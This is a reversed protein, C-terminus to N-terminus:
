KSRYIFIVSDSNTGTNTEGDSFVFSTNNTGTKEYKVYLTDPNSGSLTCHKIEEAVVGSTGGTLLQSQTTFQILTNSSSISTLKVAYYKDDFTWM